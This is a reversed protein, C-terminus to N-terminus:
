FDLRFVSSKAQAPETPGANLSFLIPRLVSSRLTNYSASIDRQIGSSLSFTLPARPFLDSFVQVNFILYRYVSVLM